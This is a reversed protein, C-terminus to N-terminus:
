LRGAEIVRALFERTRPQEPATFIQEPTGEECIVGPTSSASRTPSRKARVVDRADRHDDDDRGGRARARAALVEAVLQPDLASTIEDLLM